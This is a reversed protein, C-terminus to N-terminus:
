DKASVLSRVLVFKIWFTFCTKSKSETFRQASVKAASM